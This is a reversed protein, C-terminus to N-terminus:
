DEEGRPTRHHRSELYTRLILTAAMADVVEKRRRRKRAPAERLAREAEVSTWREDLTEVPLATAEALARAFERAAQAGPGSSGTLHLPLGVVIRSVAREAVLARLAELDRALGHRPLYGVPLAIGTEPDSIALGMRRTGLDLGLIPGTM